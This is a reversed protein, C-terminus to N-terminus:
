LEEKISNFFGTKEPTVPLVSTPMIHSKVHGYRSREFELRDFYAKKYYDRESRLHKTTEVLWVYHAFVVILCTGIINIWTDVQESM